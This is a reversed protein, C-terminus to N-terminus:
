AQKKNDSNLVEKIKEIFINQHEPPIGSVIDSIKKLKERPSLPIPSLKDMLSLQPSEIIWATVTKHTFESKKLGHKKIHGEAVLVNRRACVVNIPLKLAKAVERDCVPKNLRIFYDHVLNKQTEVNGSNLEENYSKISTNTPM